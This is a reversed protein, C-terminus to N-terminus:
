GLGLARASPVGQVTTRIGPNPDNQDDQTLHNFRCILTVVMWTFSWWHQLWEAIRNMCFKAKGQM